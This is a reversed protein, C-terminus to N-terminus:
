QRWASCYRGDFAGRDRGVYIRKHDVFGTAIEKKGGERTSWKKGAVNVFCYQM